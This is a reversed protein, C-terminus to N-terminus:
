KKEELSYLYDFLESKTAIEKSHMSSVLNSITVTVTKLLLFHM